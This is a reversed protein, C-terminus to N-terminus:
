KKVFFNNIFMNKFYLNIIVFIYINFLDFRNNSDYTDDEM